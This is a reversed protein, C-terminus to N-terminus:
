YRSKPQNRFKNKLHLGPRLPGSLQETTEFGTEKLPPTSKSRGFRFTVRKPSPSRMIRQMREMM